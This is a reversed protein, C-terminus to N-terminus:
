RIEKKQCEELVTKKESSVRVELDSGLDRNAEELLNHMRGQATVDWEGLGGDNSAAKMLRAGDDEM